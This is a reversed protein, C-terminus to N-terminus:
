ELKLDLGEMLCLELLPQLESMSLNLDRIQFIADDLEETYKEKETNKSVRHLIPILHMVKNEEGSPHQWEQGELVPLLYDIALELSKGSSTEYEWLDVGIREGIKALLLIPELNFCSYFFSRTRELEHIQGGDENLQVDLSERTQLIMKKALSQRGIFAAVVAVHLRYWSGHNNVQAAGKKGLESDTLWILYQSFWQHMGEEYSSEWGPSSRLMTIADPISLAILRGDLIGARRGKSYGPVSQAYELHPNMRTSESLFWTYIMSIAKEAFREDGTLYYALSLYKVGTTMSGMRNRDVAGTQTEPNTIGDKRIWPLGDSKTSDPWWYRSISLYDHKNGSPPDISKDMVTPNSAHLLKESRSLLMQYASVQCANSANSKLYKRTEELTKLDYLIFASNIQQGSCNFYLWLAPFILLDRIRVIRHGFMM